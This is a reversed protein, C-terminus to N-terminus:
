TVGKTPTHISVIRSCELHLWFVTVGKTPTHISVALWPSPEPSSRTVGKTPTHISVLSTHNDCIIMLDCGEHTHPNFGVSFSIDSILSSDCGEHTHPNFSLIAVLLNAMVKDCGEHTHPNFSIDDYWLIPIVSTVGKTPTHISVKLYSMKESATQPWVRRPHTSQFLFRSDYGTVWTTVGKTPTHISVWVSLRPIRSKWTVGKTPTHISVACLSYDVCRVEDCGEHTHPNFCSKWTCWRYRHPWVRRPHTSQFKGGNAILSGYNLWVRRPHTSQFM